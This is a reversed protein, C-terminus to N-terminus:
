RADYTRLVAALEPRLRGGEWRAWWGRDADDLHGAEDAEALQEEFTDLARDLEVTSDPWDGRLAADYARWADYAIMVAWTPWDGPLRERFRSYPRGAM